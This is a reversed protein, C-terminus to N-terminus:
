DVTPKADDSTKKQLNLTKFSQRSKNFEDVTKIAQGRGVSAYM